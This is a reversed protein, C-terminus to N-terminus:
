CTVSIYFGTATGHDNNADAVTKFMVYVSDNGGVGTIAIPALRGNTPPVEAETVYPSCGDINRNFRVNYYDGFATLKTVSIVAGSQAAVTGDSNIRAWLPRSFYGTVDIVLDTTAGFSKLTFAPATAGRIPIVGGVAANITSAFNLFSTAPESAGAAYAKVYGSGTAVATITAQIATAGAPIKCGSTSGGQSAFTGSGVANFNRATGSSLSGGGIRTDALRCPAVNTFILDQATDNVALKSSKPGDGSPDVSSGSGSAVAAAGAFLVLVSAAVAVGRRTFTRFAM